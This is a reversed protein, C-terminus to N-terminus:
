FPWLIGATQAILAESFYSGYHVGKPETEQTKALGGFSELFMALILEGSELPEPIGLAKGVVTYASNSWAHSPKGRDVKRKSATHWGGVLGCFLSQADHKSKERTMGRVLEEVAHLVSTHHWVLDRQRLFDMRNVLSGLEAVHWMAERWSEYPLRRVEAAKEPGVASLANSKNGALPDDGDFNRLFDLVSNDYECKDHKGATDLNREEIAGKLTARLTLKNLWYPEALERGRLAAVTQELLWSTHMAQEELAARTCTPLMRSLTSDGLRYRLSDHIAWQDSAAAVVGDDNRTDRSDRAFRVPLESGCDVAIVLSNGGYEGSVAPLPTGYKDFVFAQDARLWEGIKRRNSETDDPLSTWFHHSFVYALPDCLSATRFVPHLSEGDKEFSEFRWHLVPDGNAHDEVWCPFLKLVPVLSPAVCQTGSSFVVSPNPILKIYEWFYSRWVNEPSTEGEHWYPVWQKALWKSLSVVVTHPLVRQLERVLQGDFKAIAAEISAMDDVEVPGMHPPRSGTDSAEAGAEGEDFGAGSPHSLRRVFERDENPLNALVASKSSVRWNGPSGGPDALVRFRQVLHKEFSFKLLRSDNIISLTINAM